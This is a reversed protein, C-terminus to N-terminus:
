VRAPIQGQENEQNVSNEQEPLGDEVPFYSAIARILRDAIAARNDILVVPESSDLPSNGPQPQAIGADDLIALWSEATLPQALRRVQERIAAVRGEAENCAILLPFLLADPTGPTSASAQLAQTYASFLGDRIASALGYQAYGQAQESTFEPM